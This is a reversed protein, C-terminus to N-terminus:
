MDSLEDVIEVRDNVSMCMIEEAKDASMSGLETPLFICVACGQARLRNFECLEDETYSTKM